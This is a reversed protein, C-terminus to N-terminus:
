DIRVGMSVDGRFARRWRLEVQDSGSGSEPFVNPYDWEIVNNDNRLNGTVVVSDVRKAWGQFPLEASPDVTWVSVATAESHTVWAPNAVQATVQNYSNGNFNVDKFRSRDLDSFSTDVREARDITAQVARFKNGTISVGNLFHGAGHPKVVIFSFWPAVGSVLFINDAVTLASFSFGGTFDPTPDYENTWEIFANDVYNGTLITSCYSGAIIIGPSRIGNAVTDGQFFHNGIILNNSGGLVLFHKFKTARNNRIKLDNSVANMAISVRDPVDLADEASLFQCRDILMGQCGNGHSTICRDRARSIFCDKVHFILGSPALLIGSAVERCQIEVDELVFKSLQSFGSFDLIYKFRRFTFSQTGAADFLPANLTVTQQAVNTSTVYVERGVGNGEVLSGIEINAVNQVASLTRAAAPDYTALSTVVTTDWAADGVAELQGNRIVRRTAFSDRNPVAAQMDISATVRVNRGGMDLSDHDANNLLAQFAKKFALEEDGFADIYTPLDFEKTLVLMRDVPMTVTGEFEVRSDITVDGGLYYTGASVMVRRGAADVDAAEFAASDDTVGDGVAGYDRVDVWNMMTRLFASTIDEIEVDDIRVVGGNAGTLDLGFHGYLAARGWVMDVGARNGVGVIASVEVVDGYSTLPVTPGVQVVGPVNVGGAGGAWGAIRVSPLAGSIAKVRARIRLYCGPLLPTEGLYRLKQTADTKLIELAGGFDADAPVFAANPDGDYTDSGPTGDGSSWQDLGNSFAPPMLQVGDTIVKNM